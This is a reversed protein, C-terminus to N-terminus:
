EKLIVKVSGDPMLRLRTGDIKSPTTEIWTEYYTYAMDPLAEFEAMSYNGSGAPDRPDMWDSPTAGYKALTESWWQHLAAGSLKEPHQPWIRDHAEMYKELAAHLNRLRLTAVREPSQSVLLIWCALLALVFVIVRLITM